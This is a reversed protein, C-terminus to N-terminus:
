SEDPIVKYTVGVKHAPVRMLIEDGNYVAFWPLMAMHGPEGYARIRTINPIGVQVFWEGDWLSDIEREDKMITCISDTDWPHESM